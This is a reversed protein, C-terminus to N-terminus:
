MSGSSIMVTSTESTSIRASSRTPPFAGFAAQSEMNFRSATESRGGNKQAGFLMAPDDSFAPREMGAFDM